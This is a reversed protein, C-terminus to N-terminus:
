AAAKLAASIERWLAVHQGLTTLSGAAARAQCEAAILERVPAWAAHSAGLKEQVLRKTEDHFAQVDDFIGAAGQSALVEFAEAYDELADNNTVQAVAKKLRNAFSAPTPPGPEVGGTVTILIEKMSCVGDKAGSIFFLYDGGAATSTVLKTGGEFIRCPLSPTVGYAYSGAGTESVDIVILEGAAVEIPANVKIEFADPPNFVNVAVGIAIAVAALVSGTVTPHPIKM